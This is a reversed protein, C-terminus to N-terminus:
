LKNDCITTENKKKENIKRSDTNRDLLNKIQETTSNHSYIM